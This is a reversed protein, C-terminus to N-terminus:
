FIFNKFDIIRKLGISLSVKILSSDSSNIFSSLKEPSITLSSTDLLSQRQILNPLFIHNIDKLFNGRKVDNQHKSVIKNTNRSDSSTYILYLAILLIILIILNKRVRLRNLIIELNQKVSLFETM